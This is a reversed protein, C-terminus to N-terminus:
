RKGALRGLGIEITHSRILEERDPLRKAVGDWVASGHAQEIASQYGDRIGLWENALQEADLLYLRKIEKLQEILKPAALRPVVYIGDKLVVALRRIAKRAAAEHASIKRRWRDPLMKWQPATTLDSDVAKGAVAVIAERAIFKGSWRRFTVYIIVCNKKIEDLVVDAGAAELRRREESFDNEPRYLETATL